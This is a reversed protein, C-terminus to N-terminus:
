IMSFDFEDGAGQLESIKLFRDCAPSKQVRGSIKFDPGQRFDDVGRPCLLEDIDAYYDGFDVEDFANMTTASFWQASDRSLAGCDEKAAPAPAAQQSEELLRRRKWASEGTKGQGAASEFAAVHTPTVRCSVDVPALSATMEYRAGEGAPGWPQPPVTPVDIASFLDLAYPDSAAGLQGWGDVAQPDLTPLRCLAPAGLTGAQPVPETVAAVASEQLLVEAAAQVSSASRARTSMASSRTRPPEMGTAESDAAAHRRPSPSSAQKRCRKACKSKHARRSGSRRIIQSLLNPQSKCFLPNSYVRVKGCVKRFGFNNLQRQFAPFKYPEDDKRPFMLPMVVDEMGTHSSIVVETGGAGFKIIGNGPEAWCMEWLKRMFPCLEEQTAASLEGPCRMNHLLHHLTKTVTCLSNLEFKLM